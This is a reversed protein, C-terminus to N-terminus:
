HLVFERIRDYLVQGSPLGINESSSSSATIQNSVYTNVMHAYQEHTLLRGNSTLLSPLGKSQLMSFEEKFTSIEAQMEQCKRELTQVYTRM